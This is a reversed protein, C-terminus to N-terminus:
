FARLEHSNSVHSFRTTCQTCASLFAWYTITCQPKATHQTYYHACHVLDLMEIANLLSIVTVHLGKTVPEVQVDCHCTERNWSNYLLSMNATLWRCEQIPNEFAYFIGSLRHSSQLKRLTGTNTLENIIHFQLIDTEPVSPM